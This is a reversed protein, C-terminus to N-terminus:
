LENMAEQMAAAAETQGQAADVYRAFSSDSKHGSWKKVIHAPQKLQLAMTIFSKRAVHTTIVTHRPATISKKISGREEHLRIENTLTPIAELTLQHSMLEKLYQNQKPNSIAIAALDYGYKELVAKAQSFLPINSPESTKQTRLTIVGSHIDAKTIRTVDSYRFGTFCQLVFMDRVRELRPISTLDLKSLQSIEKAALTIITSQGKMKHVATLDTLKFAPNVAEGSDSLFQKLKRVQKALTSNKYNFKKMLWKQWENVQANTLTEMYWEAKSAEQHAEILKVLTKFITTTTPEWDGIEKATIYTRLATTVPTPLKEGAATAQTAQAALYENLQAITPLTNGNAKYLETISDELNKLVAKLDNNTKTVNAAGNAKVLRNAADWYKAGIKVGTAVRKFKDAHRYEAVISVFGDKPNRAALKAFM